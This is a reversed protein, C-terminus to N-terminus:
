SRRSRRRRDERADLALREVEDLPEGLTMADSANDCVSTSSTVTVTWLGCAGTPCARRRRRRAPSAADRARARRRRGPPWGAARGRGVRPCRPRPAPTAPAGGRRDPDDRGRRREVGRRDAAGGVLRVVDVGDDERPGRQRRGRQQALQVVDLSRRGGARLDAPTRAREVEVEDLVAVGGGAGVDGGVALPEGQRVRPGVLPPEDEDRPEVGVGLRDQPDIAVDHGDGVEDGREVGGVDAASGVGVGFPGSVRHAVTLDPDLGEDQRRQQGTPRANTTKVRTVRDPERTGRGGTSAPMRRTTM